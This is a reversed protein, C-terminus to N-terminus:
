DLVCVSLKTQIMYYFHSMLFSFKLSVFGAKTPRVFSTNTIKTRIILAGVCRSYVKNVDQRDEDVLQFPVSLLFKKKAEGNEYSVTVALIRADSVDHFFLLVVIRCM